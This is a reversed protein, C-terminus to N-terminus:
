VGPSYATMGYIDYRYRYPLAWGPYRLFVDVNLNHNDVDVITNNSDDCVIMFECLRRSNEFNLCVGSMDRIIEDRIQQDLPEYFHANYIQGLLIPLDDGTPSLLDETTIAGRNLGAVPFFLKPPPALPAADLSYEDAKVSLTSLAVPVALLAQIFSRRKM